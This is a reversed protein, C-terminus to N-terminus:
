VGIVVEIGRGEMEGVREEDGRGGGRGEGREGEGEEEEEGGEEEREKVGSGGERRGVTGTM